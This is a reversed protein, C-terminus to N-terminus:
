ALEWVQVARAKRRREMRRFQLAAVIVGAIAVVLGMTGFIITGKSSDSTDLKVLGPAMSTTEVAASLTTYTQGDSPTTSTIPM